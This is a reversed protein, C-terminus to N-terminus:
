RFPQPSISAPSWRSDLDYIDNVEFESLSSRKGHIIVLDGAGCCEQKWGPEAEWDTNAEDQAEPLDEFGTGGQPM